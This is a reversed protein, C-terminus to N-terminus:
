LVKAFVWADEREEAASYYSKREGIKKFDMKKYLAIAHENSRRVELYAIEVGQQKAATLAHSLLKYGHGQRQQGPEVGLNLIHCEGTQVLVLIFGTIKGNAQEIVWGRSDVQFCKRFIEESWPAMQTAVEIALLQSIDSTTIARLM